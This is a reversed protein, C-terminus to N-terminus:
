HHRQTEVNFNLRSEDEFHISDVGQFQVPGPETPAGAVWITRESKAPPDNIGSVLNWAFSRGDAASGVGASWKWSTYRAHYGASDDEVGLGGFSSTRRGMRVEGRAAMGAARGTWAYGGGGRRGR